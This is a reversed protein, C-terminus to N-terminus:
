LLETSTSVATFQSIMGNTTEAIDTGTMLTRSLFTDLNEYYYSQRAAETMAQVDIVGKDMGLNNIWADYIETMKDTFAKQLDGIEDAIADIRKEIIDSYGNGAAATAKILNAASSANSLGQMATGGANISSGVSLVVASAIAGIIAGAEGGILKSSAAMIIQSVIFGAIANIAAGAVIAATGALGISAGVAANAGLLGAGAAGGAGWTVITIVIVVIILVIKFWSSAYWKQKTVKYSNCVMYACSTALQTADPLSMARYVGEHLPILMGSEEPDTMADYTHIDVGKGKYIIYNHWLASVTMVLYSDQRDQWYMLVSDNDLTRTDSIGASALIEQYEGAGSSGLRFLTKGLKLGSYVGPIRSERIGGYSLSMLYNVDDAWQRITRYPQTPYTARAPEATGYLPDTPVSQADHWKKWKQQIKDAAAWEKEWQIWATDKGASGGGITNLMQFFKMIYKRGANEKTNLSVGFVCYAFDIDGLSPNDNLQKTLFDYSKNMAKKIAKKNWKYQSAYDTSHEDVTQNWMRVPVFPLFTGASEDPAFMSEMEPDLNSGKRYIVVRMPSTSTNITTQEDEIYSYVPVTKQTTVTKTTTKIVLDPLTEETTETTVKDVVIKYVTNRTVWKQITSTSSKDANFGQYFDRTHKTHVETEAVTRTAVDTTEEPPRIDSYTIETVTTDKLTFSVPLSSSTVVTWGSVSPWDSPSDVILEAGEEMPLPTDGKTLVYSYYLYLANADFGVPSMTYLRGDAFSITVLNLLEDFDIEYEEAVETPHNELMWQDVWFGYDAIGVDATQILVSEGAGPVVKSQLVNYDINNGVYIESGSLNLSATYGSTRSWRAYRRFKIGSGNLLARTIATTMSEETNAMIKTAIVTPLFQTRKDVDGALNYLSSSVSVKKKSSFLGM